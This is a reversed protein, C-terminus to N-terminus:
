PRVTQDRYIGFAINYLIASIQASYNKLKWIEHKDVKDGNRAAYELQTMKNITEKAIEIANLLEAGERETLKM